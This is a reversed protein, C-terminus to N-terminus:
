ATLSMRQKGLLALIAAVILLGAGLIYPVFVPTLGTVRFFVEVYVIAALGVISSLAMLRAAGKPKALILTVGVLGVISMAFGILAAVVLTQAAGAGEAAEVWAGIYGVVLLAFISGLFAIVFGLIGVILAAVRM